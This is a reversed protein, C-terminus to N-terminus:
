AICTKRNVCGEKKADRVRLDILFKLHRLTLNLIYFLVTRSRLLCMAARFDLEAGRLLM